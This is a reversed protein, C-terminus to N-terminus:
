PANSISGVTGLPASLTIVKTYWEVGRTDGSHEIALVFYVGNSNLPLQTNTTSGPTYTLNVKILQVTSNNLQVRGNIKIYPNLLCKVNVGQTTQEPTGVMGTSANILVATGPLYSALPVLVVQQNQISWSYNSTNATDRLVKKANGFLVKGRPRKQTASIVTAGGATVGLGSMATIAADVQQQQTTGAVLPVSVFAYNYALDGDGAIIDIFTDTASERGILVQKINGSFILGFNQQYGAQLAVHKFQSQVQVALQPSLNYVRIEAVNPTEVSSQKVSFKIRLESLDIANGTSSTLTLKIKRLYQLATLNPQPNAM